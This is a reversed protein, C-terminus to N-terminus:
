YITGNNFFKQLSKFEMQKQYENSLYELMGQIQLKQLDSMADWRQEYPTKPRDPMPVRIHVLEGDAWKWDTHGFPNEIGRVANNEEDMKVYPQRPPHQASEVVDVDKINNRINSVITYPMKEKIVIRKDDTVEFDSYYMANAIKDLASKISHEVQAM